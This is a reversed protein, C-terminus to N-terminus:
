HFPHDVDPGREFLVAVNLNPEDDEANELETWNVISLYFRGAIGIPLSVCCAAFTEDSMNFLWCPDDKDPTIEVSHLKGTQFAVDLAKNILAVCFRVRQSKILMHKAEISVLCNSAACAILTGTVM